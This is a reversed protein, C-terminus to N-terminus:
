SHPAARVTYTRIPILFRTLWRAISQRSVGAAAACRALSWGRRSYREWLWHRACCPHFSRVQHPPIGLRTVLKRICARSRGVARAVQRVGHRTVQVGLWERLRWDPPVQIVPMRPIQIPRPISRIGGSRDVRSKWRGITTESVGAVAAHEHDTLYSHDDFWQRLSKVDGIVVCAFERRLDAIDAEWDALWRQQVGEAEPTADNPRPQSVAQMGPITDM